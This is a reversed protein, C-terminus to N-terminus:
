TSRLSVDGDKKNDGQAYRLTEDERTKLNKVENLIVFPEILVHTKNSIFIMCIGKKDYRVCRLMERMTKDHQAFRFMEKKNDGQAYRLTEDERTKLNKVKNLIVLCNKGVIFRSATDRESYIM